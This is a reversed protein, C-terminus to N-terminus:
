YKVEGPICYRGFWSAMESPATLLRNAFASRCHLEAPPLKYYHSCEHSSNLMGNTSFDQFSKWRNFSVRPLCVNIDTMRFSLIHIPKSRNILQKQWKTHTKSHRARPTRQKSQHLDSCFHLNTLSTSDKHILVLFYMPFRLM